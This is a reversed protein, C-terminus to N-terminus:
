KTIVKYMSNLKKAMAVNLLSKDAGQSILSSVLELDNSAVASTLKDKLRLAPIDTIRTVSEGLNKKTPGNVDVRNSVTCNNEEDALYDKGGRVLIGEVMGSDDNFVASGSNGGYTDLNTKFFSMELNNEFVNADAAIKQPLGSPHGIVMISQSDSIIGETRYELPTVGKVNRDLEILAYDQINGTLKDVILKSDIVRKCSYINNKSTIMNARKTISDVKYDFVFKVEECRTQNGICHGATVMLNPGVLFASCIVSTPQDSFREDICLGMENAISNPPLLAHTRLNILKKSELMGATAKALKQDRKSAEYTEVRNDEGYIINTQEISAFSSTVSGISILTILSASIKIM